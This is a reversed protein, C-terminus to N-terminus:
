DNTYVKLLYKITSLGRVEQPNSFGMEALHSKDSVSGKNTVDDRYSKLSVFFSPDVLSQLVARWSFLKRSSSFKKKVKINSNDEESDSPM